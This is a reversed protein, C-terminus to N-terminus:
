PALKRPTVFYERAKALLQDETLHHEDAVLSGIIRGALDPHHVKAWAVFQAMERSMGAGCGFVLIQGASQLARAVPEFFSNPASKEQCRSFDQLNEAQRFCHDPEHALLRRPEAGAMELRFLRAEHHDLVLLWHAEKQKAEPRGADSRRLFHRLAMIEQTEAVGKARPPPLVLSQGHRTVRLNGNPEDAVHGLKELLSRIESWGLDPSVPQRFITQYTRLHSGTLWATSNM